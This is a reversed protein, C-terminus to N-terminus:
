SIVIVGDGKGKGDDNDNDDNDGREESDSSSDSDEIDHEVVRNDEDNDIVIPDPSTGPYTIANARTSAVDTSTTARDTACGRLTALNSNLLVGALSQPDTQTGVTAKPINNLLERALIRARYELADEFSEM